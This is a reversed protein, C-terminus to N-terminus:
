AQPKAGGYVYDLYDKKMPKTVLAVVLATLLSLSLAVVLSFDLSLFPAVVDVFGALSPSEDLEFVIGPLTETGPPSM